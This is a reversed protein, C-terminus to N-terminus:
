LKDLYKDQFCKKAKGPQKGGKHVLGGDRVAEGGDQGRLVAKQSEAARRGHQFAQIEKGFFNM